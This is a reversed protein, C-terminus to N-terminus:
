PKVKKYSRWHYEVDPVNEPPPSLGYRVAVFGYKEYFQRARHNQQHTHLELHRPSIKMAHKLLASGIGQHQHDPDVYLRDIYSAKMALFGCVTGATEYIWLTNPKMIHETFVELAKQEDLKQFEPLYTYELLGSRYWTRAAAKLDEPTFERIM